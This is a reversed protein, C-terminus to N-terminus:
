SNWHLGFVLGTHFRKTKHLVLRKYVMCMVDYGRKHSRDVNRGVTM